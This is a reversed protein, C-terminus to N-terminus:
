RYEWSLRLGYLRPPALTTATGFDTTLSSVSYTVDELNDVFATIKLNWPEYEYGIRANLLLYRDQSAAETNQPTYYFGSNYYGDVGLSLEGGPMSFTQSFGLSATYKPVRALRNGSFDFNGRYLGSQPDFGSADPYRTYIADLYTAGGNVVLNPNWGPFPVAVFDFEAGRSRAAGANEVTVAGGSLLSIFQQQLDDIKTQFLAGNLRLNGDFLTSKAGVEYASAKEQKVYGPPTYISVLNYSGSKYGQSFSTYLLIRDAAQYDLSVRPSFNSSEVKPQNFPLLVTEEGQSNSTAVYQKVLFRDERQYRGGLTLNIQDSLHITSQLFGSYSHTRLLGHVLLRVGNGELTPIALPLEGLRLRELIDAPILGGLASGPQSTGDGAVVFNSPDFGGQQRLYYFGGVWNFWDSGWSSDNSAFQLEATTINNPANPSRFAVLNAQSGDFDYVILDSHIKQDAVLLKIDFPSLSWIANGYLMTQRTGYTLHANASTEYDNADPRAGLLTGLPSAERLPQIAPTSGSNDLAFGTLSLDLDDTPTWRLKIRGVKSRDTALSYDQPPYIDGPRDVLTYYPDRQSYLGSLGIALTDGIPISVYAKTKQGDFNSFEQSAQAEFYRDPSKTIISIAGGTSNRGFLTGQPGKLVEVREVGTLSTILGQSAPIYIGDVYTAVSPDFSPLFAETGIGRLYILDFGAAGSFQLGPTLTQLARTDEVGASALQDASFASISIPISQATEERRQATVVIEEIMSGRNETPAAATTEAPEPPQVAITDLEPQATAQADAAAGVDATAPEPAQATAASAAGLLGGCSIFIAHRIM